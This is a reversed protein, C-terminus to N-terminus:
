SSALMASTSSNPRLRRPRSSVLIAVPSDFVSYRKSFRQPGALKSHERYKFNGPSESTCYCYQLAGESTMMMNADPDAFSKQSSPKLTEGREAKLQERVARIKEIRRQRNQLERPLGGGGEHDGHTDDESENVTELQSLIEEIEAELQAEAQDMRGHSMAKHRSTNARIKTGDIAVRGLQALGSARATHITERFV